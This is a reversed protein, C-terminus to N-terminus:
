SLITYKSIKYDLDDLRGTPDRHPESPHTPSSCCLVEGEKNGSEADGSGGEKEQQWAYSM